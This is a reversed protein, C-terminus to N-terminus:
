WSQRPCNSPQGGSPSASTTGLDYRDGISMIQSVANTNHPNWKGSDILPLFNQDGFHVPKTSYNENNMKIAIDVLSLFEKQLEHVRACSALTVDFEEGSRQKILEANCRVTKSMHEKRNSCAFIQHKIVLIGDLDVNQLYKSITKKTKWGEYGVAYFPILEDTINHITLADNNVSIGSLRQRLVALKKAEQVVEAWQKEINSKVEIATGVAEAPYLRAGVGAHIPFSPVWPMEIVIDIQGSKQNKGNNTSADTIDGTGFRYIPPLFESLFLSIFAEREYGKSASSLLAGAEFASSLVQYVGQIRQQIHINM